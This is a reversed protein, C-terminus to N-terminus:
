TWFELNPGFHCQYRCDLMRNFTEQSVKVFFCINFTKLEINCNLQLINASTKMMILSVLLSENPAEITPIIYFVGGSIDGTLGSRQCTGRGRSTVELTEGNDKKDLVILDGAYFELDGSGKGASITNVNISSCVFDKEIYM